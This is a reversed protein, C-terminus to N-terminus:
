LFYFPLVSSRSCTWLSGAADRAADQYRRVMGELADAPGPFLTVLFPLLLILRIGADKERM